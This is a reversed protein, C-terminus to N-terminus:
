HEVDPKLEKKKIKELKGYFNKKEYEEEVYKKKSLNIVM